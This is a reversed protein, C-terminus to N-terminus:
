KLDMEQIFKDGNIDIYQWKVNAIRIVGLFMRFLKAFKRQNVNV